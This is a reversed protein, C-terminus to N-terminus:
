GRYAAVPVVDTAGLIRPLGYKIFTGGLVTIARSEAYWEANEAYTSATPFAQSFPQGGTTTTDGTTPNYFVPVTELRGSRLVCLYVCSHACTDAPFVRASVPAEATAAAPAPSPEPAPAAPEVPRARACGALLLVGCLAHASRM